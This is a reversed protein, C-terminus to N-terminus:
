IESGWFWQNSRLDILNNSDVLRMDWDGYESSCAYSGLNYKFSFVERAEGVSYVGHSNDTIRIFDSGSIYYAHCDEFAQGRAKVFPIIAELSYALAGVIAVVALVKLFRHKRFAPYTM